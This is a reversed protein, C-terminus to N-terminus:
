GSLRLANAVYAGVRNVAKTGSVYKGEVKNLGDYTKAHMPTRPESEQMVDGTMFERIFAVLIVILIRSSHETSCAADVKRDSAYEIINLSGPVHPCTAFISGVLGRPSTAASDWISQRQFKRVLQQLPPDFEPLHSSTQM